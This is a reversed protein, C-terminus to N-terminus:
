LQTGRRAEQARLNQALVAKPHQLAAQKHHTKIHTSHSTYAVGLGRAMKGEGGCLTKGALRSMCGDAPHSCKGVPGLM